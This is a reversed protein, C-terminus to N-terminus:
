LKLVFPNYVYHTKKNTYYVRSTTGIKLLDDINHEIFDLVNDYYTKTTITQHVLFFSVSYAENTIVNYCLILLSPEFGTTNHEMVIWQDSM